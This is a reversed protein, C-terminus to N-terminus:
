NVTEMLAYEQSFTAKIPELKAQQIKRFHKIALPLYTTYLYVNLCIWWMIAIQLSVGILCQLIEKGRLLGSRHGRIQLRNLRSKVREDDRCAFNSGRSIDCVM